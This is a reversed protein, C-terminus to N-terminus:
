VLEYKNLMLKVQEPSNFMLVDIISLWAVFENKFQNYEIDLTKIFKLTIKEEAFDEYSYLEKGGIANVYVDANLVKCIEIVKDKGTLENNKQIDSSVLIETNISLYNCIQTIGFSLYKALNSEPNSLINEIVPFAEAFFPAKSYAQQITKSLKSNFNGVEIENIKKFSSAGKLNLVFNFDKGNLLIRNKSIWGQKIYNVDDYIVFTDVSDILQFYGIYPFFYPQMIAAKM